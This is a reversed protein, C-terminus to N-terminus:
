SLNCEMASSLNTWGGGMVRVDNVYQNGQTDAVDITVAALTGRDASVPPTPAYFSFDRSEGPAITDPIYSGIDDSLVIEGAVSFDWAIRIGNIPWDLDNRVTVAIRHTGAETQVLAANQLPVQAALCARRADHAASAQVAVPVLSVTTASLIAARLM